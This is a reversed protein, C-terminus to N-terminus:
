TRPKWSRLEREDLLIKGGEVKYSVEAPPYDVCGGTKGKLGDLTWETGCVDCVLRSGRIHFTTGICPECFSVAAVVRGSPAVYVTVPLYDFTTGNPLTVTQNPIEFRVIGKENVTALDVYITGERFEPTIETQEIRQDPPFRRSGLNYGEKDAFWGLPDLTLVIGGLALVVALALLYRGARPRKREGLIKAKKADYGSLSEM